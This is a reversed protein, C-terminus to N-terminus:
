GGGRHRRVPVLLHLRRAVGVRRRGVANLDADDELAAEAVVEHRAVDPVCRPTHLRVRTPTCAAPPPPTQSPVPPAYFHARPFVFRCPPADASRAAGQWARGEEEAVRALAEPAAFRQAACAACAACAARARARACLGRRKAARRVPSEDCARGVWHGRVGGRRRRGAAALAWSPLSPLRLPASQRGQLPDFLM